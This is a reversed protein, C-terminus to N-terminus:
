KQCHLCCYTSRGDQSIRQITKGCRRCRLGERQYTRLIRELGQFWWHPDCFEPAPDLCCELARRLVSVIAKHLKEVEAPKLSDARRRPDLRAYWLSECSYINGIGAIRTQDLLFKKLSQKSAALKQELLPRTFQESLADVGLTKLPRCESESRWVHVRALHRPDVVGLVGSPLEFAIDVHTGDIKRNARSMLQRANAFWLLQGDFRFHIELLCRNLELFLYKGVRCVNEIRAGRVLDIFHTNTQPTLLVPHFVHVCRIKQGRVLPRLTRAIAEAEPLEPM